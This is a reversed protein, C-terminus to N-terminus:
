ADYHGQGKGRRDTAWLTLETEGPEEVGATYVYGFDPGASARSACLVAFGAAVVAPLIRTSLDTGRRAVATRALALQECNCYSFSALAGVGGRAGQDAQPRSPVAEQGRQARSHGARASDLESAGDGLM